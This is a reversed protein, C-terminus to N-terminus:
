KRWTGMSDHRNEAASSNREGLSMLPGICQGTVVVLTEALALPRIFVHQVENVCLLLLRLSSPHGTECHHVRVVSQSACDGEIPSMEHLTMRVNIFAFCLTGNVRTNM